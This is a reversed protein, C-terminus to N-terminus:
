SRIKTQCLFIDRCPLVNYHANCHNNDYLKLKNVFIAYIMFLVFCIQTIKNWKTGSPVSHFSKENSEIM